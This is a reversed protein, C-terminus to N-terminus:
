SGTGALCLQALQPAQSPSAAAPEGSPRAARHNAIVQWSFEGAPLPKSFYYGQYKDCGMQQLVRLQEVTEVGEAIVKMQLNHGLAIIARVIQASGSNSGLDQIFSRDIKLKNLPLRQLYSLSSYGTGFDDLSVHIGFSTLHRLSKISSVANRMVASETLEIELLSPEIGFERVIAIVLDAFDRRQFQRASVNVAVRMPGVESQQWACIQRCAERLAWEGLPVILGTEEALPIFEGPAVLGRVPHRWRILAEAAEIRNSHVDVKPQYFLEFENAALAKRLGDDVELKERSPMRIEHSFIQYDNRGNSKVQYMAADARQLLLAATTGHDPGIAVGISASIHVDLGCLTVPQAVADRIRAACSIVEAPEHLGRALLVFEDGGLRALIDGARLQATIRAGLTSLLQDGALHGLSDNIEKFRDLDILLVAFRTQLGPPLSLMEDLSRTLVHRNPLGTLADHTAAHELQANATRLQEHYEHTRASLYSDYILLVTMVAMVGLAITAVFIALWLTDASAQGTCYANASFRSAFMATYHMGGVSAGLVAAATTRTVLGRAAEGSARFILQLAVFSGAMAIAVSLVVGYLNYTIEPLIEIASMGMFHMASIGGGLLVAGLVISHRQVRIQSIVAMALWSTLVAIALSALTEERDYSLRIPMSLALMGLFHTAWVGCGMALAGGFHWLRRHRARPRSMRFFLSLATNSVFVAVLVSLAVLYFNFSKPV